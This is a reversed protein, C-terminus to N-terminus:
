GFLAANESAPYYSVSMSESGVNLWTYLTDNNFYLHRNRLVKLFLSPISLFIIQNLIQIEVDM